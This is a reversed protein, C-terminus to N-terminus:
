PRDERRRLAWELRSMVARHRRKAEAMADVAAQYEASIRELRETETSVPNEEHETPPTTM